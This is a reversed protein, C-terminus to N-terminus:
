NEERGWRLILGYFGMWILTLTKSENIRTVINFVSLNLDNNFLDNLTNCSGFFKDLKVAFIYYYFEQNCENPHINILAPQTMCKPNRLFVMKTYNSANVIDTLM